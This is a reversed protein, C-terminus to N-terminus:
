QEALPKQLRLDHRLVESGWQGPFLEATGTAVAVCPLGMQFLLADYRRDSRLPELEPTTCLWIASQTHTEVSKGLSDFARDLDGLEAMAVAFGLTPGNVADRHQIERSEALERAEAPRGSRALWYIKWDIFDGDRREWDALVEDANTVDGLMSYARLLLAFALPYDPDLELTRRGAQIAGDYDGSQFRVRGLSFNMLVNEPDLEVAREAQWIADRSLGVSALYLSYLQHAVASDPGLAVARDLERRAETWMWKHWYCHGLAAHAMALGPDLAIARRAYEEAEALSEVSPAGLQGLIVQANALEAYAPAFWPSRRIVERFEEVSEWVRDPKWSEAKTRAQRFLELTQVSVPGTDRLGWLGVGGSASLAVAAVFRMYSARRRSSAVPAGVAESSVVTLVPVILRYGRKPVAEFYQPDRGSDTLALRIQRICYNLGQDFEVTTGDSWVTAKIEERTVLEGGRRVLLSLILFPQPALHIPVGEKRLVGAEPQIEFQGFRLRPM